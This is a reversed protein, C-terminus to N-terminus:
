NLLRSPPNEGDASHGPGALSGILDELRYGNLAAWARCKKLARRETRRVLERSIGLEQAVVELSASHILDSEIVAM